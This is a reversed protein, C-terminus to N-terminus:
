RFCMGALCRTKVDKRRSFSAVRGHALDFAPYLFGSISGGDALELGKTLDDKEPLTRAGVGFADDVHLWAGNAACLPQTKTIADFSGLSFRIKGLGIEVSTGMAVLVTSMDVCGADAGFILVLMGPMGPFSVSLANPVIHGVRGNLHIRDEFEAVLRLCFHDWLTRPIASTEECAMRAAEGLRAILLASETRARRGNSPPM